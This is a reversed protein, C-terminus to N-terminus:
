CRARGGRPWRRGIHIIITIIIGSGAWKRDRSCGILGVRRRHNSNQIKRISLSFTLFTVRVTEAVSGKRFLSVDIALVQDNRSM